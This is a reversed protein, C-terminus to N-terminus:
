ASSGDAADYEMSRTLGGQTTRIAKGVCRVTDRKQQRGPCHRRDPVPPTTNMGRKM